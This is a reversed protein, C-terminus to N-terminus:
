RIGRRGLQTEDTPLPANASADSTPCRRFAHKRQPTSSHEIQSVSGLFMTSYRSITEQLEAVVLPARHYIEHKAATRAEKLELTRSLHLHAEHVRAFLFMALADM